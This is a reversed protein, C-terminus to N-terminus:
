STPLGEHLEYFFTEHHGSSLRGPSRVQEVHDAAQRDIKV